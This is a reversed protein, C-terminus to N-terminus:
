KKVWVQMQLSVTDQLENFSKFVDTMGLYEDNYHYIAFYGDSNTNYHASYM